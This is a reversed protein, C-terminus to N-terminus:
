RPVPRRPVGFVNQLVFDAVAIAQARQFYWLPFGSFVFPPNATGHYLTMVPYGSGAFGGQTVYLTDLVSHLPDAPLGQGELIENPKSLFEASYSSSYFEGAVRYPPLPDTAPTKEQLLPPLSSYDPAGPWGGVARPSRAARSSASVSVESHWHPWDYMFRGPILEGRDNSFVSNITGPRDYDRLSAYGAGGGMLWLRGGQRMWTVLPNTAGPACYARLTPIPQLVSGPPQLYGLARQIDVFWVINRYRDLKGLSVLGNPQIRTSITDFDYGAFIGPPSLTGAPYCKYPAGGTACLFTDLEAWTPWANRPRDVCGGALLKDTIGDADNVILLPRDFSARRVDIQLVALSRLGLDDEAQLCFLHQAQSRVPTTVSIPLTLDSSSTWQSWHTLDTAEDSRPTEDDLALPDVAWRYGRLISGPVLIASWHLTLAVDAPAEVPVYSAPDAFWGGSPFQYQFSENFISLQPGVVSAINVTFELLNEDFSFVPTYAGATDIAVIAFLYGQNPALDHFAVSTVNGPVSDWGAFAPAFRSFLTDPNARIVSAPPDSSASFLRYRFAVPQRSGVGDPDSGEWRIRVSPALIPGGLRTPVPQRIFVSPAITRVDFSVHVTPSLAGRDDIARIVFTHFRRGAPAPSAIASDASFVFLHRNERTSVWATDADPTSPPDIAYRYAVVRGDADQGAWSLEYAYSSPGASSSPWQTITVSPPQNTRLVGELPHSSCGVCLAAAAAIWAAAQRKTSRVRSAFSM